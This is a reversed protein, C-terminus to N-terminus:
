KYRNRQEMLDNIYSEIENITMTLEYEQQRLRMLEHMDNYSPIGNQDNSTGDPSEFGMVSMQHHQINHDDITTTSHPSPPQPFTTTSMSQKPWADLMASESSEMFPVDQSSQTSRVAGPSRYKSSTYSSATFLPSMPPEPKDNNNEESPEPPKSQHNQNNLLAREKRVLALRVNESQKQIVNQIRELENSAHVAANEAAFLEESIREYQYRQQRTEEMARELARRAEQEKREANMLNQRIMFQDHITSQHISQARTNIQQQQIFAQETNQLANIEAEVSSRLFNLREVWSPGNGGTTRFSNLLSYAENSNLGSQSTYLAVRLRQQTVEQLNQRIQILRNYENQAEMEIEQPSRREFTSDRDRPPQSRYEERVPFTVYKSAATNPQPQQLLSGNDPATTPNIPTPTTTFSTSTTTTTSATTTTAVKNMTRFFPVAITGIAKITLETIPHNQVASAIQETLIEAQISRDYRRRQKNDSLIKYATAIDNFDYSTAVVESSTDTNALRQKADPHTIKALAVYKQKLESRTASPSAGLIEYLTPKKKNTSPISMTPSSSSTPEQQDTFSSTEDTSISARYVTPSNLQNPLQLLNFLYQNNKIIPTRTSVILAETTINSAFLVFVVGLISSKMTREFQANNGHLHKMTFSTHWLL